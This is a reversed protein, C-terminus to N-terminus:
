KKYEEGEMLEPCGDPSASGAKSAIAVTLMVTELSPGYSPVSTTCNYTLSSYADTVLGTFSSFAKLLTGRFAPSLASTVKAIM